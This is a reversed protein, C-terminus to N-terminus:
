ELGYLVFPAWKAPLVGKEGLMWLKAQRLAERKSLGEQQWNRYFQEMLARTEDDHVGRLSALV